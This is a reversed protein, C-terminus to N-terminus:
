GPKVQFLAQGFRVESTDEALVKVIEGNDPLGPGGYTIHHFCKMIEVLGLMSGPTVRSGVDVYPPSDPSPRRYFIGDSPAEVTILNADQAEATDGGSGTGAAQSGAELVRPDIRAIAQGYAVPTFSNPIFVETVRGHVDRPLRLVYRVNLVKM